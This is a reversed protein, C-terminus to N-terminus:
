EGSELEALEETSFGKLMDLRLGQPARGQRAPAPKATSSAGAHSAVSVKERAANVKTLGSAPKIGFVDRHVREFIKQFDKPNSPQKYLGYEAKFAGWLTGDKDNEPLYEPHKELFSDLVEQSKEQYTTAGLEDQRVFGMEKALTPLVERLANLEEPKYKGLVKKEDESLERTTATAPAHPLVERIRDQRGERKLRTVELRLARERPTEGEIEALDVNGDAEPKAAPAAAPANQRSVIEDPKTEGESEDDDASEGETEQQSSDADTGETEDSEVLEDDTTTTVEVREVDKVEPENQPDM